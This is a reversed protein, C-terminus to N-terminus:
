IRTSLYTDESIQDCYRVIHALISKDRNANM